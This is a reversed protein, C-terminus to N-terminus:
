EFGELIKQIAKREQHLATLMDEYHKRMALKERIDHIRESDKGLYKDYLKGNERYKLYYYGNKRCIISGKPLDSILSEYQTIMQRNRNAERHIVNEILIGM